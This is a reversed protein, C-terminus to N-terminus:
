EVRFGIPGKAKPPPEPPPKPPPELLKKIAAFVVQFQQDYKKEMEEIKRQIDKHTFILERLRTFTRMIQINVNIARESNLVSSLMAVGQETFAYPMSTSHKLKVLRDCNAVLEDRESMALQFMFDEPFRRRNRKVQENLRKTPVEYLRALDTDLMVKKGRILFIKNEIVDQPVVQLATEKM